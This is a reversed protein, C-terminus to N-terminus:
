APHPPKRVRMIGKDLAYQQFLTRPHDRRHDLFWAASDNCMTFAFWDKAYELVAQREARDDGDYTRLFDEGRRIWEAGRAFFEERVRAAWAVQKETGKLEPLGAV